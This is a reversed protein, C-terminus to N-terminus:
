RKFKLKTNEVLNNLTILEVIANECDKKNKFYLEMSDESICCANHKLLIERYLNYDLNFVKAMEKDLSAIISDDLSIYYADDDYQEIIIEM